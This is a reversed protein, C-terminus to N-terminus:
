KGAKTDRWRVRGSATGELSSGRLMVQWAGPPLSIESLRSSSPALWNEPRGNVTLLARGPRADAVAVEDYALARNTRVVWLDPIELEAGAGIPGAIEVIAAARADGGVTFHTGRVVPHLNTLPFVLPFMWGGAQEPPVLGVTAERWGGDGGALFVEHRAPVFPLEATIRGVNQYADDFRARRPRGEVIVEGGITLEAVARSSRRLTDARWVRELEARALMARRVCEEVPYPASTFDILVHVVIQGPEVTDEDFWVGDQRPPRVDGVDHVDPDQEWEVVQVAHAPTGFEYGTGEYSLQWTGFM